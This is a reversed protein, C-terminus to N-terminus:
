IGLHVQVVRDIPKGAKTMKFEVLFVAERAEVSHGPSMRIQRGAVGRYTVKVGSKSKTKSKRAALCLDHITGKPLDLREDLYELYGRSTFHEGRGDSRYSM